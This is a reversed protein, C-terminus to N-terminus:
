RLLDYQAIMIGYSQSFDCVSRGLPFAFKNVLSIPSSCLIVTVATITESQQQMVIPLAHHSFVPLLKPLTPVLLLCASAAALSLKVQFHNCSICAPPILGCFSVLVPRDLPHPLSGQVMCRKTPRPWRQSIYLVGSLVM